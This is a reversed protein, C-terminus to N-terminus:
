EVWKFERIYDDGNLDGKVKVAFIRFDTDTIEIGPIKNVNKLITNKSAEDLRMGTVVNLLSNISANGLPGLVSAVKRSLRGLVELDADNNVIDYTGHLYISLDKGKSFVELKDVKGLEMSIVGNISSFEGTKYPILVEIINNLTLGFIGSKILNSAKLLYELSGLKPLRGENIAFNGNGSLTKLGQVDDLHAGTLTLNGNLVGFIQNKIGLLSQTIKNADVDRVALDLNIKTSGFDYIVNGSMKGDAVDLTLHNLDLIGKNNQSFEANLNQATFTDMNIKDANLTGKEIIIDKPSLTFLENISINAAVPTTQRRSLEGFANLINGLDVNQSRVDVTKVRLPLVTSNVSQADVNFDTGSMKGSLKTYIIDKNLKVNIDNITTYFLPLDAANLEFTGALSPSSANGNATIDCKFLGQKLVSKKFIVNFLRATTPNNTKINFNRLEFNKNKYHAAGKLTIMSIPYTKNNQSTEYKLYELNKLFIFNRRMLANLKIERENQEDGFNAGMYAIDSGTGLKLSSLLEYNSLTGRLSGKIGVDGKIKVPYTLKSNIFKDAQAENIRASFESNFYPRTNIGNIVSNFYIPIDDYTLNLAKLTLVDNNLQANGSKLCIRVNQPKYKVSVNNFDIDGRINNNNILAKGSLNGKYDDLSNLITVASEDKLVSKLKRANSFAFDSFAIKGYVSPLSDFINNIKGDFSAKSGLYNFNLKDVIASDNKIYIKGSNFHLDPNRASSNLPIVVGDIKAKKPNLEKYNGKFHIKSYFELPLHAQITKIQAIKIGDKLKFNRSILDVDAEDGVLRGTVNFDSNEIFGSLNIFYGNALKIEGKVKKLIQKLPKIKVTSEDLFIKGSPNLSTLMKPNEYDKVVGKLALKLDSTASIYEIMELDSKLFELSPSTRVIELAKQTNIKHVNIALDLKGAENAWGALEAPAGELLAKVNKFYMIKKVFTLEGNGNTLTTNLGKMSAKANKMRFYGDCTADKLTGETRINISGTGELQMIPLPGLNFGIVDRVPILVFHAKKLDIAPTSIISYEGRQQGYLESKGSVTVYEKSSTYAKVYVKVIDKEFDLTAFAKPASELPKLVYVDKLNVNGYILPKQIDGNLNLSGNVSGHVNYSKLKRISDYPTKIEEPILKLLNNAASNKVTVKIDIEPKKESYNLIKGNVNINIKDSRLYASTIYLNKADYNGLISIVVEKDTEIRSKKLAKFVELDKADIRIFVPSEEGADTDFILNVNGKVYSIEKDAYTQIYKSFPLLELNNVFGKLIFDKKNLNKLIPFGTNLDFSYESVNSNVTLIGKTSLKIGDNLSIAGTKLNVGHLKFTNHSWYDLLTVKYEKVSIGTKKLIIEFPFKKENMFLKEIDLKGTKDKVALIQAYDGTIYKIKIKKFALPLLYVTTQFNKFELLKSSNEPNVICAKKLTLRAALDPTFKLKVDQIHMKFGTQENFNKEIVPLLSSINIMHPISFYLICLAFFGLLSSLFIILSRKEIGM